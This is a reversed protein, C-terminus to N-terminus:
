KSVRAVEPLSLPIIAYNIKFAIGQVFASSRSGSWFVALGAM